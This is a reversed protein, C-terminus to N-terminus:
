MSCKLQTVYKTYTTIVCIELISIKNLVATLNASEFSFERFKKGKMRPDLRFVDTEDAGLVYSEVNIYRKMLDTYGNLLNELEIGKNQKIFLDYVCESAYPNVLISESNYGGCTAILENRFTDLNLLVNKYRNWTTNSAEKLSDALSNFLVENYDKNQQKLKSFLVLNLYYNQYENDAEIGTACSMIVLSLAILIIRTKMTAHLSWIHCTGRSKKIYTFNRNEMETALPETSAHAIDNTTHLKSKTWM